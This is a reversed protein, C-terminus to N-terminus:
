YLQELGILRLDSRTEARLEETFGVGSFCALVTDRTDFGKRQLLERARELKRVHGHGM